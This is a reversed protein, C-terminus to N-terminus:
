QQAGAVMASYKEYKQQYSDDATRFRFCANKLYEAVAIKTNEDKLIDLSKEFPEICAKLSNEFKEVLAMYKADDMENSAEESFKIAQNYFMQGKGIYGFAYNPDIEACKDYAAVADETKGLQNCINGEVYYLSANNPENKKAEGLLEFLRDTSGNNGLYYNILGVLISQSQPFKQFGEELYDKSKESDGAKEAIDALKAFTEGDEGYYGIELSKDFFEKARDNNGALWATFAANYISNSDVQCVPETANAIAAKEFFNSAKALDGLTYATYAEDIYKGAISLIAGTIDKAKSHKVDLENAKSYAELAMDLANEYVPKTIEILGLQGAANFYYNRTPYVEKDWEQGALTVKEVSLPKENGSVLQLEQHNANIWGSGAPADYADILAKGYKIWTAFKTNKKPNEVDKKANEVASQAASVSKVQANVASTMLALLALVTIIRKM